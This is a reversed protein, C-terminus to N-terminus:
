RIILPLYLQQPVLVFSLNDAYGDNYTGVGSVRTMIITTKISRTGPDLVITSSSNFPYLGTLNGRGAANPGSLTFSSLPSNTGDLFQLQLAAYDDQDLYGGFFNVNSSIRLRVNGADIAASIAQVGRTQSISQLSTNGGAFFNTGRDAPGPDTASPFGGASGYPVVALCCTWYPTGVLAGTPSGASGEGDGNLIFNKGYIPLPITGEYAGIDCAGLSPRAFGRQDVTFPAGFQDTCQATPIAHSAPSADFLARTQTPGGNNALSDVLPDATLNHTTAGGITCGATTQILNYDQSTINGSCDDNAAGAFNQGLLTSRLNVTPFNVYIGGGHSSGSANNDALNGAITSYFASLTGGDNYIGGGFSSASNNSITSNILTVTGSDNFLGGGAFGNGAMNGRITSQTLTLFTGVSFNAIGGGNGNASQNDSITSTNITLSGNNFIGGGTSNAYGNRITLNSITVTVSPGVNIVRDIKNADISTSAAGAGNITMTNTINLDGTTEDDLGNPAIVLGYTGAPINIAVGGGPFHNAKMIAARLTCICNAPATECVGNTLVGGAVVDVASNVTFTPAAPRAEVRFEALLSVALALLLLLVIRLTRRPLDRVFEPAGASLPREPARGPSIGRDLNRTGVTKM